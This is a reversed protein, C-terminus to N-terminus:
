SGTVLGDVRWSVADDGSGPAVVDIDATFGGQGDEVNWSGGSFSSSGRLRWVGGDLIAEGEATGVVTGVPTTLSWSATFTDPRTVTALDTGRMLTITIATSGFTTPVGRSTIGVGAVEGTWTWTTVGGAPPDLESPTGGSSAPAPIEVPADLFFRVEDAVEFSTPDTVRGALGVSRLSAAADPAATYAVCAPAGTGPTRATGDADTVYRGALMVDAEAVLQSAAADGFVGLWRAGAYGGRPVCLLDPGVGLVDYVPSQDLRTHFPGDLVPGAGTSGTVGGSVLRTVEAVAAPDVVATGGFVAAFGPFLCEPGNSVSSCWDDAPEFAGDLLGAVSAPLDTAGAPVLLV